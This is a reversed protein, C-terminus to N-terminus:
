GDGIAFAITRIHDAIVKFAVDQTADQQYKKGSIQEVEEIIPIFLDTEYNTRVNQAISAMRELGMGTDINKNPLPTYTHDPNHNFE